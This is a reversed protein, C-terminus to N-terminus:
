HRYATQCLAVVDLNSHPWFMLSQVYHCQFGMQTVNEHPTPLLKMNAPCGSTMITIGNCYCDYGQQCGLEPHM